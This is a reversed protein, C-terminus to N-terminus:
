AEACLVVAPNATRFARTAKRLGPLVRWLERLLRYDRPELLIKPAGMLKYQNQTASLFLLLKTTTLTSLPFAVAWYNILKGNGASAIPGISLWSHWSCCPWFAEVPGEALIFISDTHFVQGYLLCISYRSQGTLRIADSHMKTCFPELINKDSAVYTTCRFPGIVLVKPGIIFKVLEYFQAFKRYNYRTNWKKIIKQENKLM